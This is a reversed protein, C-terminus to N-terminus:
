SVVFIERTTDNNQGSLWRFVNVVGHSACLPVTRVKLILPRSQNRRKGYVDHRQTSPPRSYIGFASTM